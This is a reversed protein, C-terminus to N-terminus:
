KIEQKPLNVTACGGFGPKVTAGQLYDIKTGGAQVTTKQSTTPKVVGFILLGLLLVLMVAEAVHWWFTPINTNM